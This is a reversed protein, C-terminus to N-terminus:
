RGYKKLGYLGLILALLTLLIFFKNDMVPVSKLIAPNATTVTILSTTSVEAGIGGTPNLVVSCTANITANGLSVGTVFGTANVTAVSLNSSNYSINAIIPSGFQDLCIVNLQLTSGNNLNLPPPPLLTINTLTSNAPSTENIAGCTDSIHNADLTVDKQGLARGCLAAGNNMAITSAGPGALINGNFVSTTGLTTTGAVQWFINKAQAGNILIVKTASSIALNQSIQFIWVDNPGGSIIIDAPITVSTTWRYVGPTFTLGGITGAGLNINAPLVTRGAANTYATQMDGIATTMTTPTPVAYDAAYIKGNVLSSTSFQNSPDMILGFGTIATSTIPSVGLNGVISTTGTTSIGSKSLVAFNGSTGLNVAAPGAAAVFQISLIVAFSLLTFILIKYKAKDIKEKKM